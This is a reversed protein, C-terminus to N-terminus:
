GFVLVSYKLSLRKDEQVKKLIKFVQPIPMKAKSDELSDVLSFIM